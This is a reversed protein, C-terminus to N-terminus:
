KVRNDKLHGSLLRNNFLLFMNNEEIITAFCSKCYAENDDDDYGHTSQLM